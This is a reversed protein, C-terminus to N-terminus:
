NYLVYGQNRITRLYQPNKSDDEIKKRLRAISVDIGREDKLNELILEERTLIQNLNKCFINLLETEVVTLNVVEKNKILIKKNFDFIYNGFHCQKLNNNKNLINHIRLVLEKPEYPKVLYDNCGSEFCSTKTNIDGLATLMIAPTNNGKSRIKQLFELGNEEPMMFDILLMDFIYKSLQIEAEKTNSSVSVFFDNKNLFQKLLERVRDDDDIVLIHYKSEM